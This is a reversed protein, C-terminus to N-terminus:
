GAPTASPSSTRSTPSRPSSASPRLLLLPPLLFRLRHTSKPPSSRKRRPSQGRSPRPPAGRAAPSPLLRWRAVGAPLPAASSRSVPWCRRPSPLRNKNKTPSTKQFFPLPPSPSILRPVAFVSLAIERSKPALRSFLYSAAGRLSCRPVLICLPASSRRRLFPPQLRRQRGEDGFGRKEKKEARKAVNKAGLAAEGAYRLM